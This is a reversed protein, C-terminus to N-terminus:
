NAPAEEDSKVAQVSIKPLPAFDEDLLMVAAQLVDPAAHTYIRQTTEEDRHGVLQATRKTEVGAADLWTTVTHRITHPTVDTKFVTKGPQSPHPVYAGLGAREVANAFGERVSKLRRGGHEIVYKSQRGAYAQELASRSSKNMPVKARGKKWAKSMPDPPLDEDFEITGAAFDIRDWTLDLIATHRAGTAFLLITFVWIHPDGKEAAAVLVAREARTLVRDRHKGPKPVWRKPRDDAPLKKPVAWKFCSHLRTLETHVTWASRGAAFREAAYKRFDDAELVSVVRHGFYPGLAAYNADYVANNMGDKEREIMWLRWLTSVKVDTKNVKAVARRSEAFKDLARRAAATDSFLVGLRM